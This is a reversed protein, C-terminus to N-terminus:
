RFIGFGRENDPRVHKHGTDREPGLFWPHNHNLHSKIEDVQLIRNITMATNESKSQSYEKAAGIFQKMRHRKCESGTVDTLKM